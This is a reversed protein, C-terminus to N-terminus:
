CGQCHFHRWGRLQRYLHQPGRRVPIGGLTIQGSMSEIAAARGGDYRVRLNGRPSDYDRLCTSGCPSTRHGVAQEARSKPEGISVLGIGRDPRLAYGSHSPGAIALSAALGLAGTATMTAAGFWRVGLHSRGHRQSRLRCGTTAQFSGGAPRGRAAFSLRIAPRSRYSPFPDNPGGCQPRARQRIHRHCHVHHPPSQVM